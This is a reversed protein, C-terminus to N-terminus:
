EVRKKEGKRCEEREVDTGGNVKQLQDLQEKLACHAAFLVAADEESKVDSM